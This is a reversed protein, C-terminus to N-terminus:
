DGLAIKGYATVMFCRKGKCSGTATVGAQCLPGFIMMEVFKKDEESYTPLTYHWKKGVRKLTVPEANGIPSILGTMFDDFFIWGSTLVRKLAREVERFSKEVAEFSYTSNRIIDSLTQRYLYMSQDPLSMTLFSEPSEKAKIKGQAQEIFGLKLAAHVVDENKPLDTNKLKGQQVKKLLEQLELIFAFDEVSHPIEKGAIPLPKTKEQFELFERWEHLPTIVGKWKGKQKNYSLSLVLHFELQVILEELKEKSLAYKKRLEDTTIKLEKSAFLDRIISNLVPDAFLLESLHKEYIKPTLFYKEILSAFINDSTKSINYWTPILSIPVKNLLGLMFELNPEFHDDFKDIHFEYYKRLDKDVFISDNQKMLLGTRSFKELVPLLLENECNLAKCLDSLPIKISSNLIEQLVEVEFLSLDSLFLRNEIDKKYPYDTLFIKTKRNSTSSNINNANSSGSSSISSSYSRTQM